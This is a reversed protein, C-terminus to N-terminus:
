AVEAIFWELGHLAASEAGRRNRRKLRCPALLAANWPEAIQHLWIGSSDPTCGSPCGLAATGVHKNAPTGAPKM